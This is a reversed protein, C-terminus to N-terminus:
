YCYVKITLRIRGRKQYNRIKHSMEERREELKTTTVAMEALSSVKKQVANSWVHNSNTCNRHFIKQNQVIRLFYLIQIITHSMEEIKEELKTTTVAMGALSSVKLWM